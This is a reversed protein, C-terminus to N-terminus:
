IARGRFAGAPHSFRPCIDRVLQTIVMNSGFKTAMAIPTPRPRIQSVDNLLWVGFVGRTSALIKSMDGMCASNYGIKVWIENGHCGPDTVSFNERRREIALGQFGGTLPLFIRSIECILWTIALKSGYKTAMAVLTPRPLIQSIDNFLGVGL